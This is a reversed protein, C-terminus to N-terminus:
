WTNISGASVHWVNCDPEPPESYPDEDEAETTTGSNNMIGMCTESTDDYSCLDDRACRGKSKGSCYDDNHDLVSDNHHGVVQHDNGNDDTTSSCVNDVECSSSGDGNYFAACCDDGSVFFYKSRQNPASNWLSPYIDNNSCKRELVNTPHYKKGPCGNSMDNDDDTAVGLSDGVGVGSPGCTKTKRDYECSESKVCDKRAKAECSTTTTTTSESFSSESNASAQKTHCSNSTIDFNCQHDRACRRRSSKIGTCQSSNNNDSLILLLQRRHHHHHHNARDSKRRVFSFSSNDNKKSAVVGCSVVFLSTAAIIALRRIRRRTQISVEEDM